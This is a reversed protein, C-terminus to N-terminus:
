WWHQRQWASYAGWWGGYRQKAYNNAWQLQCIPDGWACGTKSYPLAQPLGGAGSSANRANPNWGSEKSIIYDVAQWDSPAIGSATLWEQKAGSAAHATTVAKPATQAMKTREQHQRDRKAQLERELRQREADLKQKEEELQKIHQQDQEQKELETELKVNLDKYHLQLQKLEASRDELQVNKLEVKQQTQRLNVLGIGTFVLLAVTGIALLRQHKM